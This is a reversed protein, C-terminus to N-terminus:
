YTIVGKLKIVAPELIASSSGQLKLSGKAQSLAGTGGTVTATGVAFIRPNQWTAVLTFKFKLTASKFTFQGTGRIPYVGPAPSVGFTSSTRLTGSGWSPKLKVTGANVCTAGPAPPGGNQSVVSSVTMSGSIHHASPKATVAATSTGLVAATVM